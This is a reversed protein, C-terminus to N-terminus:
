PCVCLCVCLIEEQLPRTFIAAFLSLASEVSEGVRLTVSSSSLSSSSSSPKLCPAAYTGANLLNHPHSHHSHHHPPYVNANHHNIITIFTLPFSYCIHRCSAPCSPEGQSHPLTLHQAEGKFIYREKVVRKDWNHPPRKCKWLLWHVIMPRPPKQSLPVANDTGLYIHGQIQPGVFRDYTCILWGIKRIRRCNLSCRNSIEVAEM